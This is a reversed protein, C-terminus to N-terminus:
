EEDKTIMKGVKKKLISEAGSVFREMNMGPGAPEIRKRQGFVGKEYRTRNNHNEQTQAIEQICTITYVGEEVSAIYIAGPDAVSMILTTQLSMIGQGKFKMINKEFLDAFPLEHIGEDLGDGIIEHGIFGDVLLPVMKLVKQTGASMMEYPLELLGEPTKVRLFLKYRVIDGLQDYRYFVSDIDPNLWRMVSQALKEGDELFTRGELNTVGEDVNFEVNHLMNVFNKHTYGVEPCRIHTDVLFTIIMRLSKHIEDNIFHRNNQQIEGLIISLLSYNGWYKEYQSLLAESQYHDFTGRGFLIEDKTVKFLDNEAEAVDRYLREEVLHNHADFTLSYFYDRKNISIGFKLLIEGTSKLRRIREVERELDFMSVNAFLAGENKDGNKTQLYELMLYNNTLSLISRRLFVFSSIFSTKGSGTDGFILVLPKVTGKRNKFSVKIDKFCKYNRLEVSSFM